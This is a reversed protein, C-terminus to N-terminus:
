CTKVLSKCGVGFFITVENERFRALDRRTQLHALVVLHVDGHAQTNANEYDNEFSKRKKEGCWEIRAHRLTLDSRTASSSRYAFLNAGRSLVAM